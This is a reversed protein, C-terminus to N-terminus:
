YTKLSIDEVKVYDEPSIDNGDSLRDVWVLGGDLMTMSSAHIRAREILEDDVPVILSGSLFSASNDIGSIITVATRGKTANLGSGQGERDMIFNGFVAMQKERLWLMLDVMADSRDKQSLIKWTQAYEKGKPYTGISDTLSSVLDKHVDSFRRKLQGKGLVAEIKEVFENFDEETHERIRQWSTPLASNAWSNWVAKKTRSTEPIFQEGGKGDPIKLSDIKLHCKKALEFIKENRNYPLLPTRVSPVPREGFLVHLLNSVQHVTIPEVWWPHLKKDGRPGDAYLVKDKTGSKNRFLKANRFRLVIYRSM